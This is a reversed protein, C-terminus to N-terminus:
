DGAQLMGSAVGHSGDSRRAENTKDKTKDKTKGKAISNRGERLEGVTLDWLDAAGKM